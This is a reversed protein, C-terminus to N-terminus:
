LKRGVFTRLQRVSSVTYNCSGPISYNGWPMYVTLMELEAARWIFKTNNAFLIADKPDRNQLLQDYFHKNGQTRSGKFDTLDPAQIVYALLDDPLKAAVLRERDETYIAVDHDHSLSRVFSALEKKDQEPLAVYTSDLEFIALKRPKIRKTKESPLRSQVQVALMGLISFNLTKHKDIEARESDEKGL